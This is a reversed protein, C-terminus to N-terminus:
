TGGSRLSKEREDLKWIWFQHAMLIKPVQIRAVGKKRARRQGKRSDGVPGEPDLHVDTHEKDITRLNLWRWLVQDHDRESLDELTLVDYYFEDLTELRQAGDQKELMPYCDLLGLTKLLKKKKKSEIKKEFPRAKPTDQLLDRVKLDRYNLFDPGEFDLFPLKVRDSNAVAM